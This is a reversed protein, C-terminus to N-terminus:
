NKLSARLLSQAGYRLCRELRKEGRKLTRCVTSKNVGVREGIEEMTLGDQYYLVLYKRQCETVDEGLARILNRKMQNMQATNDSSISRTYAEMDARYLGGKKCHIASM